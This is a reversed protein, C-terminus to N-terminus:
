YLIILNVCAEPLLFCIMIGIKSEVVSVQLGVTVALGTKKLWRKSILRFYGVKQVGVCGVYFDNLLGINFDNELVVFLVFLSCIIM